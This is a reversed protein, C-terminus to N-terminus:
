EKAEKHHLKTPKLNAQSRSEIEASEADKEEASKERNFIKIEWKSKLNNTNNTTQTKPERERRIIIWCVFPSLM